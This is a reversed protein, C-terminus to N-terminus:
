KNHKAFHYDRGKKAVMKNAMKLHHLEERDLRFDTITGVGDKDLQYARVHELLKDETYRIDPSALHHTHANMEHM